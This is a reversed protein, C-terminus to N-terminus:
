FTNKWLGRFLALLVEAQASPWEYPTRLSM